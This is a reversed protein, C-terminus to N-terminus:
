PQATFRSGQRTGRAQLEAEIEKMVDEKKFSWAPAIVEDQSGEAVLRMIIQDPHLLEIADAVLSVYESKEMTQILGNRYDREMATGKYICLQHIKVGDVGCRAVQRVTDLMEERSEGPLGYILHTALKLERKRAREVADFFEGATHARNVLDLTRDVASQLGIELWIFTRKQYEALLDLVNDPVCDPRTGICIGVVDPHELATDYLNKLVAEPAYTNTFAQFYALFKRAHYRKRARTIGKELQEQVSLRANITPAGSGREDCYTCGGFARTGDRNPCDFGADLPVRFVREGFLQRLYNNFSNYLGSQSHINVTSATMALDAGPTAPPPHHCSSFM